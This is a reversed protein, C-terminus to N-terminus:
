IALPSQLSRGRRSVALNSKLSTCVCVLVCLRMIYLKNNYRTYIITVITVCVRMICKYPYVRECWWTVGNVRSHVRCVAKVHNFITYM